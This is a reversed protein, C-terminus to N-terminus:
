IREGDQGLLIVDDAKARRAVHKVQVVPMLTFATALADAWAPDRHVVSASRVKPTTAARGARSGRGDIIHHLSDGVMGSVPSASALGANKLGVTKTISQINEPDQVAIPWKKAGFAYYEGINVLGARAGLGILMKAIKGSIYGPAIANLTLQMGPALRINKGDIEVKRYDVFARAHAWLQSLYKQQVRRTQLAAALAWLPQVTVDFAGGTLDSITRATTLVEILEVPADSTWGAANLQSLQSGPRALSFIDLYRELAPEIAEVLEAGKSQSEFGAIKVSAPGGFASGSWSIEPELNQGCASLGAFAAGSAIM